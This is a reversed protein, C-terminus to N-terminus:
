NGKKLAKAPLSATWYLARCHPCVAIPDWTEGELVAPDEVEKGCCPVLYKLTKGGRAKVKAVYEDHKQQLNM